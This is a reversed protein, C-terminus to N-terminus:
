HISLLGTGKPLLLSVTGVMAKAGAGCCAVVPDEGLREEREKRAQDASLSLSPPVPPWRPQGM